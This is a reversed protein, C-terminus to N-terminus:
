QATPNKAAEFGVTILVRSRVARGGKRAPAFRVDRFATLAAEDFITAPSSEVVSIENLTGNEDILLLLTVKGTVADRAAQVPYRPEVSSLPRPYEDLFRAAYYTPDRIVPVQLALQPESPEPKIDASCGTTRGGRAPRQRSPRKSPSRRLPKSPTAGRDGAKPLLDASEDNNVTRRLRYDVGCQWSGSEDPSFCLLIVFHVQALVV